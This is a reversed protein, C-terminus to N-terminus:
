KCRMEREGAELSLTELKGPSTSSKVLEDSLVGSFFASM